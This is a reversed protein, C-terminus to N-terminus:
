WRAMADRFGSWGPKASFDRNLMGFQAERDTASTGKNRLNYVLMAKVYSWGDARAIRFSDNIYQAQRSESVCWSSSGAACTSWGFETLWLGKAGDGNAVMTRRIWPVGSRFTWKELGPSRADDPDRSENYPHISIGDHHGRLGLDYLRQIFARDAFSTAGALVPLSPRVAKVRGYAARVLRMYSAAPTPSILFNQYTENPENWIELAAMRDGWRRVVWAAAEGYDAARVPAYKQVDRDWWAGSCGQKLDEPASSAWCPTTHFTVLVKLGRAAAASFIADAKDVYREAFRGKGSQELSSWALDLRITNAGANDLRDLERRAQDLTTNGWLSHVQAGRRPVRPGLEDAQASGPPAAGWAVTAVALLALARALGNSYRRATTGRM